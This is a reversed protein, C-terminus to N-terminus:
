VQVENDRLRDGGGGGGWEFSCIEAWGQGASNGTCAKFNTGCLM